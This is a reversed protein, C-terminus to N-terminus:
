MGAAKNTLRKMIDGKLNPDEVTLNCLRDNTDIVSELYSQVDSGRAVIELRSINTFKMKLDLNPRSTISLRVFSEM